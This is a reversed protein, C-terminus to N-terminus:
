LTMVRVKNMQEADFWTLNPAPDWGAELAAEYDARAASEESTSFFLRSHGGNVLEVEESLDHAHIFSM